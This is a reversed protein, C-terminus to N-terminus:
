KTERRLPRGSYTGTAKGNDFVVQGNVWVTRVGVAQAQAAGFDARDAVSAPDFLVLDAYYGPALRGRNALGVNTAALSTM